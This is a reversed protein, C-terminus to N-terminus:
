RRRRSARSPRRRRPRPAPSRAATPRRRGAGLHAVRAGVQDPDDGPLREVPQARQRPPALLVDALPQGLRQEGAGVHGVVDLEGLADRDRHQGHQLGEARGLPRHEHQALHEVSGYSSIASATPLVGAATRWIACRARSCTAARRGRICTSRASCCATPPATGPRPAAGAVHLRQEVHEGGVHHQDGVAAALHGRGPARDDPASCTALKQGRRSSPRARRRHDAM